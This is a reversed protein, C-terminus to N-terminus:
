LDWDTVEGFLMDLADGGDEEHGNMWMDKMDEILEKQFKPNELLAEFGARDTVKKGVSKLARKLEAHTLTVSLTVAKSM